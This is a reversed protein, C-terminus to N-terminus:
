VVGTVTLGIEKGCVVVDAVWVKVETVLSSGTEVEFSVVEVLVDVDVAWPSSGM